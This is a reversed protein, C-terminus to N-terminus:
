QRLTVEGGQIWFLRHPMDPAHDLHTTTMFAQAGCQQLTQLLRQAHHRDLEGMVDDLLLLPCCDRSEAVARLHALKLALVLGRAQGRSAVQRAPKDALLLRIDELHPGCLTLGRRQEEDRHRQLAAAFTETLAAPEPITDPDIPLTSQYAMHVPVSGGTIRDFVRQLLPLWVRMARLRFHIIHAGTRALLHDFPARLAPSARGEKLLRNRDILAREYRRYWDVYAPLLGGCLQDLAKRRHSASGLVIGLDDPVFSIVAIRDALQAFRRLAKGGLRLVKGKPRLAVDIDFPVGGGCRLHIKGGDQGFTILEATSTVPRLPKGCCALSLTELLNTKGQANDGCFINLSSHPQIHVRALNRVNHVTFETIAPADHTMGQEKKDNPLTRLIEGHQAVHPSEEESREDPRCVPPESLKQCDHEKLNVKRGAASKTPM